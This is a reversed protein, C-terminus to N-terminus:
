MDMENLFDTVVWLFGATLLAILWVAGVIDGYSYPTPIRAELGLEVVQLMDLAWLSVALFPLLVVVVLILALCGCFFFYVFRM